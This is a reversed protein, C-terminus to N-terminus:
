WLCMDNSLVLCGALFCDNQTIVYPFRIKLDISLYFHILLKM